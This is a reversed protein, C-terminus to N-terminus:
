HPYHMNPSLIIFISESVLRIMLFLRIFGLIGLMIFGYLALDGGFVISIIVFISVFQKRRFFSFRVYGIKGLIIFIGFM